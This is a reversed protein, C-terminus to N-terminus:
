PTSYTVTNIHQISDPEWVMDLLNPFSILKGLVTLTVGTSTRSVGLLLNTAVCHYSGQDTLQVNSIFLSGNQLVQFRPGNLLSSNKRWSVTAAPTSLPPLCDIQSDEGLISVTDVPQLLFSSEIATQLYPPPPLSFLFLLPHLPYLISLLFFILLSSYWSSLSLPGCTPLPPLHLSLPPIRLLSPLRPPSTSYLLLSAPPPPNTTMSLTFSFPFTLHSPSDFHVPPHSSLSFCVFNQSSLKECVQHLQWNYGIIHVHTCSDSCRCVQTESYCEFHYSWTRTHLLVSIVVM